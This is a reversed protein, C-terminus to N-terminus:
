IVEELKDSLVLQKPEEDVWTESGYKEADLRGAEMSITQLVLLAGVFLILIFVFGYRM